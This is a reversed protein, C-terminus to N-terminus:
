FEIVFYEPNMDVNITIHKDIPEVVSTYGQAIFELYQNEGPVQLGFFGDANTVTGITTGKIIVLVGEVPINKVKDTVKGTILVPPLKKDSKFEVAMKVMIDAPKGMRVAPSWESILGTVRVAEADCEPSIGRMVKIDQIKGQKNIMYTMLVTGSIGAKAAAEPYHINDTIFKKLAPNGGPYAPLSNNSGMEQAFATNMGTASLLVMTTCACIFIKIGSNM